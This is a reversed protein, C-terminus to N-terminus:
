PPNPAPIPPPPPPLWRAVLWGTTGAVAATAVNAAAGWEPPPRDTGPSGDDTVTATVAPVQARAEAWRRQVNRAALRAEQALGGVLLLDGAVLALGWCALWVPWRTDPLRRLLQIWLRGSLVLLDRPGIKEEHPAVLALAWIQAILFSGVGLLLQVLAWRNRVASDVPLYLNAVVSTGAVLALGGLLVLLWAPIRGVLELFEVLGLLSLRREPKV